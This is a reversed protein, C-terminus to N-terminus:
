RVKQTQEETTEEAFMEDLEKPSLTALIKSTKKRGIEQEEEYTAPDELRKRLLAIIEQYKKIRKDQDKLVDKGSLFSTGVIIADKKGVPIFFVKTRSGTTYRVGEKKIAKLGPNVPQSAILTRESRDKISILQNKLESFYQSPIGKGNSNLDLDEEFLSEEDGQLFFLIGKKEDQEEKKEETVYALIEDLKNAIKSRTEEDEEPVIELLEKYVEIEYAAM